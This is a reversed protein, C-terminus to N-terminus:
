KSKKTFCALITVVIAALNVGAMLINMGALEPHGVMQIGNISEAINWVGDTLVRMLVFALLAAAIIGTFDTWIREGFFLSVLCVIAAVLAVVALTNVQGGRGGYVLTIVLTAVALVAAICAFYFGAAKSKM